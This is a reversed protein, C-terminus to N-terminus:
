ICDMCGASQLVLEGVDKTQENACSSLLMALVLLFILTVIIKWNKYSM